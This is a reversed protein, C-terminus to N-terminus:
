AEYIGASISITMSKIAISLSLAALFDPLLYIPAIFSFKLFYLWEFNSSRWKEIESKFHRLFPFNPIGVFLVFQLLINFSIVGLLIFKLSRSFNKIGLFSWLGLFLLYLISFFGLELMSAVLVLIVTANCHIIYKHEDYCCEMTQFLSLSPKAMTKRSTDTSYTLPTSPSGRPFSAFSATSDLNSELSNNGGGAQLPRSETRTGTVLGEDKREEVGEDSSSVSCQETTLREKLTKESEVFIEVDRQFHLCFCQFFCFLSVILSPSVSVIMNWALSWWSPSFTPPEGNSEDVLENIGVFFSVYLWWNMPLLLRFLPTTVIYRLLTFFCSPALIIKWCNIFLPKNSNKGICFAETFIIVLLLSIYIIGICGRDLAAVTFAAIITALPSYFYCMKKMFLSISQTVSKSSHTDQRNKLYSSDQSIMYSIKSDIDHLSRSAAKGITAKLSFDVEIDALDDTSSLTSKSRSKVLRRLSNWLVPSKRKSSPANGDLTFYDGSSESNGDSHIFNSSLLPMSKSEVMMPTSLRKSDSFSSVSLLDQDILEDDEVEDGNDRFLCNYQIMMLLCTVTQGIITEGGVTVLKDSHSPTPCYCIGM